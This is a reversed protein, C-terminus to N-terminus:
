KDKGGFVANFVLVATGYAIFLYILTIILDEFNM